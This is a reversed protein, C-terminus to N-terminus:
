RLLSSVHAATLVIDPAILAGGCLSDGEMTAVTTVM